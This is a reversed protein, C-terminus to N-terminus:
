WTDTCEEEIKPIHTCRKMETTEDILEGSLGAYRSSEDLFDEEVTFFVASTITGKERCKFASRDTRRLEKVLEGGFEAALSPDVIVRERSEPCRDKIFLIFCETSQEMSDLDRFIEERIGVKGCVCVENSVAIKDSYVHRHGILPDEGISNPRQLRVSRDVVDSDFAGPNIEGFGEEDIVTRHIQL